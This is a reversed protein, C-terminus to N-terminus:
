RAAKAAPVAYAPMPEAREDAPHAFAGALRRAHAAAEAIEAERGRWAEGLGATRALAKEEDM